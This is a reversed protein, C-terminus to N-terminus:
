RLHLLVPINQLPLTSISILHPALGQVNQAAPLDVAYDSGMGPIPSPVYRRELHLLNADFLIGGPTDTRGALAETESLSLPQVSVPVADASVGVVPSSRTIESVAPEDMWRLVRIMHAITTFNTLVDQYSKEGMAEFVPDGDLWRSYLELIKTMYYETEVVMFEVYPMAQGDHTDMYSQVQDRVEAIDLFAEDVGQERRTQDRRAIDAITVGKQRDHDRIGVLFGMTGHGDPDLQRGLGGTDGLIPLPGAQVIEQQTDTDTYRRSKGHLKDATAALGFGEELSNALNSIPLTMLANLMIQHIDTPTLVNVKVSMEGLAQEMKGEKDLQPVMLDPDISMGRLRERTESWQQLKEEERQINAPTRRGEFEAKIDQAPDTAFFLRLVAYELNGTGFRDNLKANIRDVRSKLDEIGEWGPNDSAVPGTLIIRIRKGANASKDYMREFAELAETKGKLPDVRSNHTYFVDEESREIQLHDLVADVTQQNLGINYFGFIDISNLNAVVPHTVPLIKSEQGNILYDHYASNAHTDVFYSLFQTATKAEDSRAEFPIHGFWSFITNKFYSEFFEPFQRQLVRYLAAPQPDNVIVYHPAPINRARIMKIMAAANRMTTWIFQDKMNPTHILGEEKGHFLYHLIPTGEEGSLDYKFWEMTLNEPFAKAHAVFASIIDGVGGAISSNIMWVRLPEGEQPVYERTLEKLEAIKEPYDPAEMLDKEQYGKIGDTERTLNINRSLRAVRGRELEGARERLRALLPEWDQPRNAKLYAELSSVPLTVTNVAWVIFEFNDEPNKLAEPLKLAANIIKTRDRQSTENLTLRIQKLYAEPINLGDMADWFDRFSGDGVPVFELFAINPLRGNPNAAPDRFKRAVQAAVIPSSVVDLIADLNKAPTIGGSFYKRPVVQESVPDVEERIFNIVGQRLTEFYQTYIEEKYQTEDLAIGAIKEQNVYTEKVLSEKLVRKYWTALIMAHYIQRLRAFHRGENVEQEIVPVLVDRVVQSSLANVDEAQAKSQRHEGLVRSEFSQDLAMLDEELMVKLHSEAIYASNGNEYIVAKDPIIWIKNFTQIPIEITGYKEVAKRYTEKWFEEGAPTEPNMISASLKKLIYDQELMERGMATLSLIDPIIKEKEYPSLNVWIDEEPITLSALFYKAFVTIQEETVHDAEGMDQGPLVIFNVSLPNDPYVILGELLTPIFPQSLDVATKRHSLIGQYNLMQAFALSSTFTFIFALVSVLFHHTIKRM